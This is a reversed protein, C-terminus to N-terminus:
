FNLWGQNRPIWRGSLLVKLVKGERVRQHELMVPREPTSTRIDKDPEDNLSFEGEDPIKELWTIEVRIKKVLSLSIVFPSFFSTWAVGLTFEEMQVAKIKSGM